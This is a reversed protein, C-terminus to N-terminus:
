LSALGERVIKEAGPSTQHTRPAFKRILIFSDARNAAGALDFRCSRGRCDSAPLQNPSDAASLQDSFKFIRYRNL